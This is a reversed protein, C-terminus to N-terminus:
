GEGNDRNNEPIYFQIISEEEGTPDTFATKVPADLGWLRARRESIKILRDIARLVPASDQLRVTKFQGTREDVIPNGNEDEVIDRVVSGSSIYPHFAKLIRMAETHMVDLRITELKRHAEVEPAIIANLAKMYMKYTFPASLGLERAIASINPEDRYMQLITSQLKKASESPTSHPNNEKGVFSM